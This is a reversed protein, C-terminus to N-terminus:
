LLEWIMATGVLKNFTYLYNKLVKNDVAYPYRIENDIENWAEEIITRVQVEAYIKEKTANCEIIYHVSRYGM